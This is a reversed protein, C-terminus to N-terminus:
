FSDAILEISAFLGYGRIATSGRFVPLGTYVASERLTNIRAM